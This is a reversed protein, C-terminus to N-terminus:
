YATSTFMLSLHSRSAYGDIQSQCFNVEVCFHKKFEYGIGILLGLGDWVSASMDDTDYYFTSAQGLGMTSFLTNGTEGFYHSWCVATTGQSIAPSTSILVQQERLFITNQEDFAFGVDIQFNAGGDSRSAGTPVYFVYQVGSDGPLFWNYYEKHYSLYTSNTFPSYGGGVGLILGKRKGDFAQVSNSLCFAFACALLVVFVTNSFKRGM